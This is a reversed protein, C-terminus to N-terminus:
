CASTRCRDLGRRCLVDLLRPSGVAFGVLAGLAYDAVVDGAVIPLVIDSAGLGEWLLGARTDGDIRVASWDRRSTAWAGVLALSWNPYAQRQLSSFTADLAEANEADIAHAIVRVHPGHRWNERPRDLGALDVARSGRARWEHYRELPTAGLLDELIGNAISRLGVAHIGAALLAKGAGHEWAASVLERRSLVECSELRFDSADYGDPLVLSIRRCEVPVIGIWQGTGFLAAPIAVRAEATGHGGFCIALRRASCYLSTSYRLKLWQGAPVGDAFFLELQVNNAIPGSDHTTRM